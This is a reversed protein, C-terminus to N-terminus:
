LVFERMCLLICIMRVKFMNYHACLSIRIWLRECYRRQRKAAQINRNYWPHMPIRPMEKTKLSAHEYVIDRLTSGCLDVLNEVDNPPDLVLSSVRMYDLFAEKDIPM